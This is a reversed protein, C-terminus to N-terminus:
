FLKMSNRYRLNNHAKSDLLLVKHTEQLTAIKHSPTINTGLITIDYHKM